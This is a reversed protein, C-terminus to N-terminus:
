ARAPRPPALGHDKLELLALARVVDADGAQWAAVPDTCVRAIRRMPQNAMARLAFLRLDPEADIFQQATAARLAFRARLPLWGALVLLIPVAAVLVGLFVALDEVAEVQRRGAGAIASAAGAARDFPGSLDDGFGPVRAAQGGADALGRAVGDGGSALRRGPEALALTIDHLASGLRIWAYTWAIVALDALVQGVRRVPTDAYLKVRM